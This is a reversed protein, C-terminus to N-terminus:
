FGFNYFEKPEKAQFEYHLIRTIKSHLLMRNIQSVNKGYKLDGIIPFNAFQCHVRIQHTRGNEIIIRVKSKNGEVLYPIITTKAPKGKQSDIKSQASKGKITLIPQNIILEEIFKGDVIAVYEKYVKNQAFEKIAKQRFNKNKAFMMVGSTEKDLRNLLICHPFSDAVEYANLFAPKDVVLIDDDEFIVKSPAIHKIKFVTSEKMLARAVVLKQGNVSVVGKDILEKAKKNSMYEQLALLKYAMQAM